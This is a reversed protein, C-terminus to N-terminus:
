VPPVYPRYLASIWDHQPTKRDKLWGSVDFAGSPVQCYEVNGGTRWHHKECAPCFPPEPNLIPDGVQIPDGMVKRWGISGMAMMAQLRAALVRREEAADQVVTPGDPGPVMKPYEIPM